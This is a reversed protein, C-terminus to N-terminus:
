KKLESELMTKLEPDSPRPADTNVIRGQRDFVMFRPIGKIEYIQCIESWGSAFLQVGKLDEKRIFDKWKQEDKAEDISVSLFVVEKDHFEKELEKLAPIEKRCPGCWTAWVDVLVVKGKFDSLSTRKGDPDPYTFDVAPKGAKVTGRTLNKVVEVGRNRQDDTILYKGYQKEMAAYEAYNKARSANLLVIEGKMTDSTIAELQNSLTAISPLKEGTLVMPMMELNRLLNNGFYYGLISADGTFKALQLNKYSSPIEEKKPHASRPTFLISTSIFALQANKWRIFQADFSKNGTSTAPQKQQNFRELLPFFDVYTGPATMFNVAIKELQGIQDHWQTIAINERTNKGTLAYSTDNVHLNLEEGGAFWFPYKDAASVAAGTGIVYQGTYEPYFCFGFSGDKAPKTSALEELRGHTVKYLSIKNGEAKRKWTGKILSPLGAFAAVTVLQLMCATIIKKM